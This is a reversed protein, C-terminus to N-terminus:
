CYLIKLRCSLMHVKFLQKYKKDAEEFAKQCETRSVGQWATVLQPVAGPPLLLLLLL